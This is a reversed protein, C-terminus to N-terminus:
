FFPMKNKRLGHFLMFICKDTVDYHHINIFSMYLSM